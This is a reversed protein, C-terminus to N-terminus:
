LAAIWADGKKTIRVAFTGTDHSSFILLDNAVVPTVINQDCPTVFPISWLLKGTMLAVGM